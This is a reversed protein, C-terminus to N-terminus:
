TAHEHCSIYALFVVELADLSQRMMLNSTATETMNLSMPNVFYKMEMRSQIRESGPM